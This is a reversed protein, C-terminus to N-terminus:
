KSARLCMVEAEARTIPANPQFTGDPYGKIFGIQYAKQIDAYGWFSPPVDSFIQHNPEPLPQGNQEWIRVLMAAMEARTVNQYIGISGDPYGKVIGKDKLVLAYYFYQNPTIVAVGNPDQFKTASRYPFPISTDHSVSFDTFPMQSLNFQASPRGLLDIVIMKFVAGRTAPTNPEFTTVGDKFYGFLKGQNELQQLPKTYWSGGIDSFNGAYDFLGQLQYYVDTLPWTGLTVNASADVAVTAGSGVATSILNVPNMDIVSYKGNAKNSFVIRQQLYGFNDVAVPLDNSIQIQYSLVGTTADYSFNRMSMYVAPLAQGDHAPFPQDHIAVPVSLTTTADQKYTFTSQVPTPLALQPGNSQGQAASVSPFACAIILMSIVLVAGMRFAKM